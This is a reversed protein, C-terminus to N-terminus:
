FKERLWEPHKKLALFCITWLGSGVARSLMVFGVRGEEKLATVVSFISLVCVAVGLVAFIWFAVKMTPSWDKPVTSNMSSDKKAWCELHAVGPAPAGRADAFDAGSISAAIARPTVAGRTPEPAKNPRKSEMSKQLSRPWLPWALQASTLLGGWLTSWSKSRM